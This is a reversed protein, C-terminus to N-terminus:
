PEHRVFWLKCEHSVFAPQFHRTHQKTFWPLYIRIDEDLKVKGQKAVSAMYFNTETTNPTNNELNVMGFGKAYILSDNRVIGIAGGPSKPNDWQIFLEDIKKKTSDDITQSFSLSYFGILLSPIFIRKM